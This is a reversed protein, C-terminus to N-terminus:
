EEEIKCVKVGLDRYLGCSRCIGYIHLEGEVLDWKAKAGCRPCEFVTGDLLIVGFRYELTTFKKPSDKIIYKIRKM